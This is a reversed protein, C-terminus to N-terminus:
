ARPTKKPGREDNGGTSKKSRSHCVGLRHGAEGHALSADRQVPKETRLQTESM